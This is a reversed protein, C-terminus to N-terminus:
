ATSWDQQWDNCADFACALLAMSSPATRRSRTRIDSGYFRGKISMGHHPSWIRYKSQWASPFRFCQPLLYNDLNTSLLCLNKASIISQTIWRSLSIWTRAKLAFHTSHRLCYQYAHNHSLISFTPVYSNCPYLRLNLLSQHYRTADMINWHHPVIPLNQSTSFARLYRSCLTGGVICLIEVNSWSQVFRKWYWNTFRLKATKLFEPIRADNTRFQVLKM